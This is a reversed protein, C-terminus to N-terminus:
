EDNIVSLYCSKVALLLPEYAIYDSTVCIIVPNIPFLRSRRPALGNTAPELGARGV